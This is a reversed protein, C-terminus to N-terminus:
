DSGSSPTVPMLDLMKQGEKILTQQLIRHVMANHIDIQSMAVKQREIIEKQSKIVGKLDKIYQQTQMRSAQTRSVKM